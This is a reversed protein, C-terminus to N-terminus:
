SPSRPRGQPAAFAFCVRTISGLHRGPTRLGPSITLARLERYALGCGAAIGVDLSARARLVEMVAQPVRSLLVGRLLEPSDIRDLEGAIVLTQMDIAGVKATINELSTV